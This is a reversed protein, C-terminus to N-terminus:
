WLGEEEYFMEVQKKSKKISRISLLVIWRRTGRAPERAQEYKSKDLLLFKNGRRELSELDFNFSYIDRQLLLMTTIIIRSFIYVNKYQKRM